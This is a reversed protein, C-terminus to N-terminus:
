LVIILTIFLHHHHHHHHHQHHHYTITITAQEMSETAPSSCFRPLFFRPLVNKERARGVSLRSYAITIPAFLKFDSSRSACPRNSYDRFQVTRPGIVLSGYRYCINSSFIDKPFNKQAFVDTASKMLTLFQAVNCSTFIM